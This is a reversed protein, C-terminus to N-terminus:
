PVTLHGKRQMVSQKNNENSCLLDPFSHCDHVNIDRFLYRVDAVSASDAPALGTLSEVEPHVIPVLFFPM